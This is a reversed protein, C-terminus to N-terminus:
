MGNWKLNSWDVGNWKAPTIGNWKSGNGGSVVYEFAGISCTSGSRPTGAIDFLPVLPDLAPGIGAAIAATDGTDLRFDGNDADVFAISINRFEADPSTGDSTINAETGIIAGGEGQMRYDSNISAQIINNKINFVSKDGQWGGHLDIGYGCNYVTNNYVNMTCVNPSLYRSGVTIGVGLGYVINNQVHYTPNLGNMLRIGDRLQDEWDEDTTIVINDTVWVENPLDIEDYDMIYIGRSLAGSQYPFNNKIQLGRVRIDNRKYTRIAAWYDSAVIRARTDDWEGEHRQNYLSEHGATPAYFDIYHAPSTIHDTVYILSGPTYDDHDFYLPLRLIVGLADIDFSGLHSADASGALAEAYSAFEHRISGVVVGTVDAPVEGMATVVNFSTPSNVRSIYCHSSGYTIRCGQGINGTQAVSLAAVGGSITITPSGTKIDGTGFPCVSYYVNTAALALGVWLLLIVASLSLVRRM